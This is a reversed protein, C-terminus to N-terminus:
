QQPSEYQYINQEDMALIGDMCLRELQADVQEKSYGQEMLGTTVAQRSLKLRYDEETGAIGKEAIARMIHDTM